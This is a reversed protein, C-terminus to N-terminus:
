RPTSRSPSRADGEQWRQGDWRYVRRSFADTIEVRGDPLLMFFRSASLSPASAARSPAEAPSVRAGYVTVAFTAISATLAILITRTYRPMARPPLLFREWLTSRSM